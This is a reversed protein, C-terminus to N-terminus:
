GSTPAARRQAAAFWAAVRDIAYRDLVSPEFRVWAPGRDSASTEPTRRAAPGITADLRFEVMPGRHVAFDQGETSWITSDAEVRSTCDVTGATAVLVDILSAAAPESM